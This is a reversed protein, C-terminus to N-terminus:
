NTLKIESIALIIAIIQDDTFGVGDLHNLMNECSEYNIGAMKSLESIKM